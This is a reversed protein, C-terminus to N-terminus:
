AGVDVDDENEADQEANDPDQIPQLPQAPESAKQYDGNLYAQITAKM